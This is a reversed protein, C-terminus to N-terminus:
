GSDDSYRRLSVIVVSIRLFPAVVNDQIFKEPYMPCTVSNLQISVTALQEITPHPHSKVFYFSRM